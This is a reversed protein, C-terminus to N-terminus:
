VKENEKENEKERLGLNEARNGIDTKDYLKTETERFEELSLAPVCEAIIKWGKGCLLWEKKTRNSIGQEKSLSIHRNQQVCFCRRRESCHNYM